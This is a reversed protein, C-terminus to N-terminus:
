EYGHPLEAIVVADGDECFKIYFAQFVVPDYNGAKLVAGIAQPIGWQIGAGAILLAGM